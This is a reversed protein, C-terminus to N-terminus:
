SGGRVNEAKMRNDACYRFSSYAIAFLPIVELVWNPRIPGAYLFADTTHLSMIRLAYLPVFCLCAVQAIRLLRLSNDGRSRSLGRWSAIAIALFAAAILVGLPVQWQQRDDYIEMRVAMARLIWRALDEGEYVRVVLLILIAAAVALWGHVHKLGAKHATYTARWVLAIVLVYVGCAILSALSM